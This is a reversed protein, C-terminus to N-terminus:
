NEENKKEDTKPGVRLRAAEDEKREAELELRAAEVDVQAASLRVKAEELRQKSSEVLVSAGIKHKVRKAGIGAVWRIAPFVPRGRWLPGVLQTWTLLVLIAAPLLEFFIM